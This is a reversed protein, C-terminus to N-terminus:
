GKGAMVTYYLGKLYEQAENWENEVQQLWEPKDEPIRFTALSRRPYSPDTNIRYALPAEYEDVQVGVM